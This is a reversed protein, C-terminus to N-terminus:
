TDWTAETRASGDPTDGDGRLLREVDLANTTAAGNATNDFMCWVDVGRDRYRGITEALRQLYPMEYTSRYMEPSGHLRYYVLGPEGTPEAARPVRAPDAAVGAVRRAALLVDVEPTFWSPHRPELVVAGQHRSRLADLFRTVVERTFVRSPPLQVLLPGLAAGLSTAEALFADLLADTDALAREHTITRPVKVAFRFGEPVSAAWRAYTTPRHPRYFSSNIEAGRFRAAYRELHAGEGPFETQVTRPLSWGATGIM